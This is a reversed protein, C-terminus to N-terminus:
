ELLTHLLEGVDMSHLIYPKGLVVYLLGEALHKCSQASLEGCSHPFCIPRSDKKIGTACFFMRLGEPKRSVRNSCGGTVIRFTGM